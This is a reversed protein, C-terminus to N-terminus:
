DFKNNELLLNIVDSNISNIDINNLKNIRYFLIRYEHDFLKINNKKLTKKLDIFNM